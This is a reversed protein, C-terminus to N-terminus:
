FTRDQIQFKTKERKSELNSKKEKPNLIKM